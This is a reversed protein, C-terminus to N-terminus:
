FSIKLGTAVGFGRIGDPTIGTNAAAIEFVFLRFDLGLGVAAVLGHRGGFSLGARLPLFFIPRWEMGLGLRPVPRYGLGRSFPQEFEANLALRGLQYTTGVRLIVPVPTRFSGTRSLEVDYSTLSDLDTTEAEEDFEMFTGIGITDATATLHVDYTSTNWTIGPSLNLLAGHVTWRDSM